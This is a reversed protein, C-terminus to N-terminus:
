IYWQKHQVCKVIYIEKEFFWDKSMISKMDKVFRYRVDSIVVLEYAENVKQIPVHEIDCAINHKSYFDFIEQTKYEM